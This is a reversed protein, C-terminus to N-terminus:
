FKGGGGGMEPHTHNTNPIRGGETHTCEPTQSELDQKQRKGAMHVQQAIKGIEM